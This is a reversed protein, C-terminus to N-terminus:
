GPPTTAGDPPPPVDQQSPPASPLVSTAPSPAAPGPTSSSDGGTSPLASPQVPAGPSSASSPAASTDSPSPSPSSSTPLTQSRVPVDNVPAVVGTFSSGRQASGTTIAHLPRGAAVEIVWVAFFAVVVVALAAVSLRGAMQPTFHPVRWDWRPVGRVQHKAKVLVHGYLEAASGSVVAGVATAVLTGSGGFFRSGAFAATVAAAAAAALRVIRGAQEERSDPVPEGYPACPATTLAEGLGVRPKRALTLFPSVTTRCM